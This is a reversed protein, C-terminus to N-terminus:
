CGRRDVHGVADRGHGPNGPSGIALDPGTAVLQGARLHGTVPSDARQGAQGEVVAVQQRLDTEAGIRQVVGRDGPRDDVRDLQAVPQDVSSHPVAVLGADTCPETGAPQGAVLEEDGGLEVALELAGPPGLGPERGRQAPHPQVVDVQDQDVPRQGPAAQVDVGPVGEVAQLLAPQGPRDADGVELRRM